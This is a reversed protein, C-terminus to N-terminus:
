PLVGALTVVIDSLTADQEYPATVGIVDGPEYSVEAHLTVFGATSGAPFMIYGVENDGHMVGLYAEATPAVRARAVHGTLPLTVARPLPVWDLEGVDPKGKFGLSVDYPLGREHPAWVTGGQHARVTHGDPVGAASVDGPIFDPVVSAVDELELTFAFPQYQGYAPQSNVKAVDGNSWITTYTWGQPYTLTYTQGATADGAWFTELRPLSPMGNAIPRANMDGITAGEPYVHEVQLVTYNVSTDPVRGPVVLNFAFRLTVQQGPAFESLDIRNSEVTSTGNHSNYATVYMVGYPDAGMTVPIRLARIRGGIADSNTIEILPEFASQPTGGTVTMGVEANEPTDAVIDGIRVKRWEAAGNSAGLVVGNAPNVPPLGVVGTDVVSLPEAPTGKGTLTHDHHVETLGGPGGPQTQPWWPAFNVRWRAGDDALVSAADRAWDELSRPALGCAFQVALRQRETLGALVAFDELTMM